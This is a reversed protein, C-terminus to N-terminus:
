IQEAAKGLNESNGQQMNTFILILYKFQYIATYSIVGVESFKNDYYKQGTSM